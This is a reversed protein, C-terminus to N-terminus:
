RSKSKTKTYEVLRCFYFSCPNPHKLHTNKGGKNLYLRCIHQTHKLYLCHQSKICKYVAFITIRTTNVLFEM